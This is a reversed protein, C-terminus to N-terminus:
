KNNIASSSSVMNAKWLFLATVNESWDDTSEKVVVGDGDFEM